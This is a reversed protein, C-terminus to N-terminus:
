SRPRRCSWCRSRSSGHRLHVREERHLFTQKPISLRQRTAGLHRDVGLYAAQNGRGRFLRALTCFPSANGEFSLTYTSSRPTSFSRRCGKAGDIADIRPEDQHPAPFASSGSVFPLVMDMLSESVCSRISLAAACRSSRQMAAAGLRFPAADCFTAAFNTAMPSALSTLAPCREWTQRRATEANRTQVHRRTPGILPPGQSDRRATSRLRSAGAPPMDVPLWRNHDAARRKARRLNSRRLGSQFRVFLAPVEFWAGSCGSGTEGLRLAVRWPFPIKCGSVPPSYGRRM